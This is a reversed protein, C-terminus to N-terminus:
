PLCHPPMLHNFLNVETRVIFKEKANTLGMINKRVNTVYIRKLDLDKKGAFRVLIIEM